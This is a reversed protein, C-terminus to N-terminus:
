PLRGRISLKAAIFQGLFKPINPAAAYLPKTLYKNKGQGVHPPYEHVKLAYTVNVGVSTSGGYGLKVVVRDGVVRAKQVKGSLRLYGNVVPVYNLKSDTMIEEAVMTVADATDSLVAGILNPIDNKIAVTTRYTKM